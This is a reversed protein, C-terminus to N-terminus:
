RCLSIQRQMSKVLRIAITLGLEQRHDYIKSNASFDVREAMSTMNRRCGRWWECLAARRALTDAM